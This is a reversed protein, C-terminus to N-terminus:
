PIMDWIEEYTEQVYWRKHERPGDRHNIYTVVISKATNNPDNIPYVRYILATNLLVKEIVKDDPPPKRYTLQIFM